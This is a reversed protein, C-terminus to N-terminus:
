IKQPGLPVPFVVVALISAFAALQKVTVSPSGQLEQVIHKDAFALVSNSMISSSAALLLPISSILSIRSLTLKAGM